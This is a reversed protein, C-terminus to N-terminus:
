RARMSARCRNPFCASNRRYVLGVGGVVGFFGDDGIGFM